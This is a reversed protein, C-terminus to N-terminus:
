VFVRFGADGAWAFHKDSKNFPIKNKKSVLAKKPDKNNYIAQIAKDHSKKKDGFSVAKQGEEGTIYGVFNSAMRKM